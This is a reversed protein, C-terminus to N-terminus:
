CRRWMRPDRPEGGPVLVLTHIREGPRASSGFVGELTEVLNLRQLDSLNQVLREVEEIYVDRDDSSAGVNIHYLTLAHADVTALAHTIEAKIADKFHCVTRTKEIGVPFAPSGGPLICFITYSMRETTSPNLHAKDGAVRWWM